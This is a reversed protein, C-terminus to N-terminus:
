MSFDPRALFWDSSVKGDRSFAVSPVGDVSSSEETEVMPLVMLADLRNTKEFYQVAVPCCGSGMTPLLLDSEQEGM